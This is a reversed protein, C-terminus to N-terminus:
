PWIHCALIYGRHVGRQWIEGQDNYVTARRPSFGGIGSCKVLNEVKSARTGVGRLQGPYYKPNLSHGRDISLHWIEDM